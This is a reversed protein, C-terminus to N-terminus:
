DIEKGCKKCNILYIENYTNCKGCIWIEKNKYDKGEMNIKYDYNEQNKGIEILNIDDNIKKNNIPVIKEGSLLKTMLLILFSFGLGWLPIKFYSMINDFIIYFLELYSNAPTYKLYSHLTYLKLIFGITTTILFLYSLFYLSYKIRNKM